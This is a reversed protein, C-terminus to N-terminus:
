GSEKVNFGRDELELKLDSMRERNAFTITLKMEKIKPEEKKDAVDVTFKEIGLLDLDFEPGFEGIETNINSLDLESWENLANDAVLHAYEDAESDFDQYDVPVHTVGLKKAAELRGHGVIMYGSLNSVVIPSRFGQHELIKALREIQPQPHKNPNKPHPKLDGVHVLKTHQCQVKMKLRGQAKAGHEQLRRGM